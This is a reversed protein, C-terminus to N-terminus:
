RICFLFILVLWIKQSPRMTPAAATPFDDCGLAQQLITRDDAPGCQVVAECNKRTLTMLLQNNSGCTALTCAFGAYLATCKSSFGTARLASTFKSALTKEAYYAIWEPSLATNICDNVNPTVCKTMSYIGAVDFLPNACIYPSLQATENGCKAFAAYCRQPFGPEYAVMGNGLCKPQVQSDCLVKTVAEVCQVSDNIQNASIGIDYDATKIRDAIVVPVTFDSPFTCQTMGTPRRCDTLSSVSYPVGGVPQYRIVASAPVCFLASVIAAFVYM